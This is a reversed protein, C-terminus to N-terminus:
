RVGTTEGFSHLPLTNDAPQVSLTQKQPWHTYFKSQQSVLVQFPILPLISSSSHDQIFFVYCVGAREGGLFFVFCFLVTYYEPALLLTKRPSFPLSQHPPLFTAHLPSASLLMSSYCLLAPLRHCGRVSPSPSYIM